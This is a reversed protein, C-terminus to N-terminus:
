KIKAMAKKVEEIHQANEDNKVPGLGRSKELCVLAEKYNGKKYLGWGKTDWFTFEGPNIQLAKDALLLGEDINRDRDILFWSLDNLFLANKPELLVAKRYYEEAQNLLGDRSYFSALKYAIGGETYSYGKLMVVYKGLYRSAAVTDGQCLALSAHQSVLTSNEPFDKEGIAYLQEEKGYQKTEHYANGLMTYNLAWPPTTGWKKYIELAKEFAPIAEDYKNMSQLEFGLEFHFVPVQDDIEIIQKLYKISETLSEFHTAYLWNAMIKQALPLQNRKKYLELCWKKAEEPNRGNNYTESLYLAASSFNPDKELAKLLWSKANELDWKFFANKGYIFYRYAEASTTTAFKQMELNQGKKLVSLVVFDSIMGKLSDIFPLIEKETSGDLQFSKFPEQTEADILQANIRITKGAEKISGYVVLNAGLKQSVSIAMAPTFSANEAPDKTKLAGTVSEIQKVRLEAYNSLDTILENQIGEEWVNWITDNTLNKFPMVAVSIKGKTRLNELTDRKFIKQYFLTAAIILITVIAVGSIVKGINLKGSKKHKDDTEEKRVELSPAMQQPQVK